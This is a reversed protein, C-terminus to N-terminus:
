QKFRHDFLSFDVDPYHKYTQRAADVLHVPIVDYGIDVPLKQGRRQNVNSQGNSKSVFEVANELNQISFTVGIHSLFQSFCMIPNENMSKSSVMITDIKFKKERLLIRWNVYFNFIAPFYKHFVYEYKLQDDFTEYVPHMNPALEDFRTKLSVLSDFINRIPIFPLIQFDNMLRATLYTPLTHTHIVVNRSAYEMLFDVDLNGAKEISSTVMPYDLTLALIRAAFTSASKKPGAVVVTRRLPPADHPYFYVALPLKKALETSVLLHKRAVNHSIGAKHLRVMIEQGRDEEVYAKVLSIILDRNPRQRIFILIQDLFEDSLNSVPGSLLKLLHAQFIEGVHSNISLLSQFLKTIIVQNIELKQGLTVAMQLTLNFYFRNKVTVRFRFFSIKTILRGISVSTDNKIHVFFQSIYGAPNQPNLVLAKVSLEHVIPLNEDGIAKAIARDLDIKKLLVQEM